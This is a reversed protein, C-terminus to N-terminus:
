QEDPVIEVLLLSMRTSLSLAPLSVNQVKGYHFGMPVRDVAACADDFHYEQILTYMKEGRHGNIMGRVMSLTAPSKMYDFIDLFKAVSIIPAEPVAISMYASTGDYTNIWVKVDQFQERDERTLFDRPNQDRFMYAAEQFYTATKRPDYVARMTLDLGDMTPRTYRNFPQPQMIGECQQKGHFCYYYTLGYWGSACVQFTLLFTLLVVAVQNRVKDGHRASSTGKRFARCFMYVGLIGSLIEVLNAYRIIGSSFAWLWTACLLTISIQKIALPTKKMLLVAIAIVVGLTLRGAYWSDNSNVFLRNPHLFNSFPWYLMELMSRPGMTPDKFSAAAILPSHFINNYYPFFPNGTMHYMYGLFLASPLILCGAALLLTVLAPFYKRRISIVRLQYLLLGMLPLIFVLNTLKFALSIGLLASVKILTRDQDRTKPLKIILILGALLLPLAYLDIMPSNVIALIPETSLILLVTLYRPARRKIFTQLVQDVLAGTWLLCAVNLLPALRYGLLYRAVGFVMDPAPNPLLTGPFFDGLRLPWGRLSREANVFHYNLFDFELFPFPARLFFFCLLPLVVIALWLWDVQRRAPKSDDCRDALFFVIAVGIISSLSWAIANRTWGGNLFWFYERAICTIYLLLLVDPLSFARRGIASAALGSRLRGPQEELSRALSSAQAGSLVYDSASTWSFELKPEQPSM